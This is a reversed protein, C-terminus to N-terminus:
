LASLVGELRRLATARSAESMRQINQLKWRVAPLREVGDIGFLAWDPQGRKVSLLFTKDSETVRRGIETLLRPGIEMLEEVEVPEATMGDFGTDFEQRIDRWQPALLDAMPRSHSILYVLFAQILGHDLGEQELLLKVDFFDRPHQRDLAACIKGAYLDGFSVVPAAAFGYREAVVDRVDMEVSPFVTGRLVPSVEIKIQAGRAGVILGTLGEDIRKQAVSADPVTRRVREAIRGLAAEIDALAARREADPLYTLDIDVSLRPLDRVFLNIATGGKLAFCAEAAVHPLVQILLQVQREYAPRM